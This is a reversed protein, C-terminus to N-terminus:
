AKDAEGSQQEVQQALRAAVERMEQRAHADKMTEARLLIEKARARWGSGLLLLKPDPTVRRGVTKTPEM